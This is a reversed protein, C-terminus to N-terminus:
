KISIYAKDKLGALWEDLRDQFKQQFLMKKIDKQADELSMSGFDKIDEVKLIHYGVKSKIPGSFQGPKLKSLAGDLEELMEGPGIYGMDGGEDKNPGQSHEKALKSFDEGKRLMDFIDYMEIKALEFNVMNDAKILIHGVKYKEGREFEHRHGEYYATVESPLVAVRSKIELDVVKKMMIQDTYRDKLDAVTIGQAELTGYFDEELDFGKKIYELRDEIEEETVKIDLEKARSLVLKDEVVQKLIDKKVDEMKKLLEDGRYDHVYQAYLVALLQNLDQQTIVEDNVVAVVKNIVQAEACLPVMLFWVVLIFKVFNGM